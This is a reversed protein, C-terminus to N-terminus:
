GFGRMANMTEDLGTILILQSPSFYKLSERAFREAIAVPRLQPNNIDGQLVSYYNIMMTIGEIEDKYKKFTEHHMEFRQPLKNYCKVYAFVKNNRKNVLDQYLFYSTREGVDIFKNAFDLDTNYKNKYNGSINDIVLSSYSNKVYFIPIIDEEMLQEVLEVNKSSSQAGILPGDVFLISNKPVNAMLFEFRDDLYRKKVEEDPTDSIIAIEMDKYDRARTAFYATLQCSYDYDNTGTEVLAHSTFVLSGQLMNFKQISEDYALINRNTKPNQLKLKYKQIKSDTELVTVQGTLTPDLIINEGMIPNDLDTRKINARKFSERLKTPNILKIKKNLVVFIM